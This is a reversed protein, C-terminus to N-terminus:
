FPSSEQSHCPVNIRAVTAQLETRKKHPNDDCKTVTAVVDFANERKLRM